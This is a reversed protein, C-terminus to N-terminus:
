PTSAPKPTVKATKGKVANKGAEVEGEDNRRIADLLRLTGTTLEAVEDAELQQQALWEFRVQQAKPLSRTFVCFLRMLYEFEGIDGVQYKNQLDIVEVQAGFALRDRLPVELGLVTITEAGALPLVSTNRLKISM